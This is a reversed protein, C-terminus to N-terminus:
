PRFYKPEAGASWPDYAKAFAARYAIAPHTDYWWDFVPHPAPDDLSDRGLEEFSRQGVAQPDDVIGHVAEQGYVDADHEMARSYANAAPAGAITLVSAALALVIVGSWEAPSGVAWRAGYRRILWRAARDTLWLLPLLELCTLVTGLVVHGLVYHGLEHAFIFSIESPTSRAVTTDWVVVRKSAGFGTVYANLETSKASAQMVFMRDPPITMGSRAVVRELQAVLAPDVKEMPEFRNFLPDIVYPSVFVGAVVVGMALLWFWAWWREGSRRIIRMLGVLVFGGIGWELLFIKTLDWFWSPWSQVSLDYELATWHGWMALPLRTLQVALLVLLLFVFGQVRLHGFRAAVRQMWAGTGTVLLLLLVAPVIAADAVTLERGIRGLEQARALEKAPLTYATRDGAAVAAAKQEAPTSRTLTAWAAAFIACFCLAIAAGALVRRVRM